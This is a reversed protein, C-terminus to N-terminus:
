PAIKLAGFHNQVEEQLDNALRPGFLVRLSDFRSAAAQVGFSMM